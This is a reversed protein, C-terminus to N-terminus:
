RRTKAHVLQVLYKANERPLDPLMGHGLNFIHGQNGMVKLIKEVGEELANKNYLRTPELNGQLVYKGGLIKKATELPTGWDVGFVDFEGDISDLYAGIGKPFLIVPIHAYRKKLEKSIKEFLGM